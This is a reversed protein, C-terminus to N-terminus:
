SRLPPRLLLVFGRWRVWFGPIHLSMDCQDYNGIWIGSPMLCLHFPQSSTNTIAQRFKLKCARQANTMSEQQDSICKKLSVYVLQHMRISESIVILRVANKDSSLSRNCLKELCSMPVFYWTCCKKLIYNQSCSFTQSSPWPIIIANNMDIPKQM